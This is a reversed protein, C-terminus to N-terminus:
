FQFRYGVGTETLLHRPRAPDAELKQRLRRVYIRLYHEQGAHGPGWVERMLHRHTLVKGAGALLVALLRYEIQTLHLDEAGRRASHRALDVEIDGFRRVPTADTDAAHRRLLVRVRALLEGVGFPKTLYDDAGADLAEIKDQEATRASLILVPVRSWTRLSRIFELGSMDPLGLDLVVLQPEHTVVADLGQRAAGVGQPLAGEKRLADSVFRRIQPEDEVVVIRPPETM